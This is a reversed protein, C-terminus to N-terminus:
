YINNNKPENGFDRFASILMKREMQGDREGDM